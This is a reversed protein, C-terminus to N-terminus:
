GGSIAPRHQFDLVRECWGAVSLLWRDCAMGGILQLGCPLGQDTLGCPITVAPLGAYTWPSNFRPDGTSQLGHPAATPTAPTVVVVDDRILAQIDKQFQPQHRLALAYDVAFTALGEELLSRIQPGYANMQQTFSQFHTEAADVAMICRHMMHVQDFSRPLSLPSFVAGAASLQRLAAETIARVSADAHQDFYRDFVHLALPAPPDALTESASAQGSMAAVMLWLDSVCRAIPGVHDLRQSVPVVGSREVHGFSPKLGAVGCYAAPRIISGGTQSGVAACCMGAAVAAASGSSSGGPTHEPNWPNRTVAPDFCAFETTVTKGLIVAGAARLHAVVAADQQPRAGRLLSSGAETPMGQVDIIDKIGVPIGHLPGLDQGSRLLDGLRDAERLAGEADLHVWAQVHPEWMEIRDLCQQVLERPQLRGSRLQLAVSAICAFPEM